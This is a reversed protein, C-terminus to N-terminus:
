GRRGRDPVPRRGGKWVAFSHASLTSLDPHRGLAEEVLARGIGSGRFDPDVFLAHLYQEDVWMFAIVQDDDGVALDLPAGQLLAAVDVEIARRDEPTLFDHTADVSRRWIELVRAGDALTSRRIRTM